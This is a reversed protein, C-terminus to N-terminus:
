DGLEEIIISGREVPDDSFSVADSCLKMAADVDGRNYKLTFIPEGKRVFDGKSKLITIGSYHDVTDDKTKRGSGINMSALGMKYADISKLFGTQESIIDIEERYLIKPNLIFDIDGSQNRINEIFYEFARGTAVAEKSLEIGEDIGKTKGSLVMMWGSIRHSLEMTVPDGVGRLLDACELVENYNGIQQGIPENMDTILIKIGLGARKAVGIIYRSLGRASEINKMFAGSGCKLDLVLSNTGEAIKKSMISSTILPISEVTGTVDRLAYLMKDAPVMCETQGMMVFNNKNLIKNVEDTDLFVRYGPISELKDLTGGTHGLGRGSMMPIVCGCSAAIPAVILSIKDGVGGTSHKDVKNSPIASFDLKIGSKIMALTLQYTEDFSLGKYFVSMLFSAVQYDPIEGKIYGDIFYNIEDASLEYGDRKKVILDVARM